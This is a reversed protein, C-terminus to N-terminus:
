GEFSGNRRFSVCLFLREVMSREVRASFFHLEEALEILQPVFPVYNCWEVGTGKWVKEFTARTRRQLTPDNM